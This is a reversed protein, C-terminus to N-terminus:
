TDNEVEEDYDLYDSNDEGYGCGLLPFSDAGKRKRLQPNSCAYTNTTLDFVQYICDNCHLFFM